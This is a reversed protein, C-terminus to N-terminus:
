KEEGIFKLYNEYRSNLITKGVNSRVMCGKEKLHNCDKFQCQYNKFELFSDKIQEKSFNTLDYASFGPTDAVKIKGVQYIEVHRTTHKGRGLSKSILDTKINLNGIKNLLTSKGAGTQGTLFVLKNKIYHKISRINKNTFVKIKLIKKYYKMIKKIEKLEQKSCLDLKTLIIVPTIHNLILNTIQKDLLNLSFLPEKLSTIILGLDVNAIFPRELYNKRALVELIYKNVLDVKVYDGVVLTQGTNRFKGRAMCEYLKNDINVTYLNSIIKVIQGKM